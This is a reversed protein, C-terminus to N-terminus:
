PGCAIAAEIAFLRRAIDLGIHHPARTDAGQKAAPFSAPLANM